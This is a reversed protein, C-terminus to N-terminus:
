PKVGYRELLAHIGELSSFHEPLIDIGAISIGFAKDLESVLTVVDMSDLMGDEIFDTSTSFDFEPRIDKLIDLVRSM